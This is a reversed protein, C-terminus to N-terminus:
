VGKLHTLRTNAENLNFLEPDFANGYWETILSYDRKEKMQILELAMEYGTVGGSDEPPAHRAGNTCIPYEGDDDVTFEKQLSIDITWSDGYDYVYMLNKGKSIVDQLAVLLEQKIDQGSADQFFHLHYNEWLFVAQFVEHLVQLSIASRVQITRYIEPTIGQLTAKIEFIKPM